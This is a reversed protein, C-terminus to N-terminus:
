SYMSAYGDAAELGYAVAFAPQQLPTKAEGAAAVTAVRFPASERQSMSLEQLAPNEYLVSYSHGAAM